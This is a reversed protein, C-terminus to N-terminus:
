TVISSMNRKYLTSISRINAGKRIINKHILKLIKMFLNDKNNYTNVLLLKDFVQAEHKMFPKNGFYNNM